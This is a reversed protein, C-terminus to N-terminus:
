SQCNHMSRKRTSQLTAAANIAQEAVAFREKYDTTGTIPGSIYTRM